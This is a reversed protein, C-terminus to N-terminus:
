IYFVHYAIHGGVMLCAYLYALGDLRMEALLGGQKLTADLAQREEEDVLHRLVALVVLVSLLQQSAIALYKLLLIHCLQVLLLVHEIGVIHRIQIADGHLVSVRAIEGDVLFATRHVALGFSARICGIIDRGVIKNQLVLLTQQTEVFRHAEDKGM